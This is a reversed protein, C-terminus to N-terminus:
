APITVPRPRSRGAKSRAQVGCRYRHGPVLGRVRIAAGGVSDRTSGIAIDGRTRCTAVYGRIRSGRPTAATTNIVGVTAHVRRATARAPRRPNTRGAIRLKRKSFTLNDIMVTVGDSAISLTTTAAASGSTVAFSAATLTAPSDVNYLGSLMANPLTFQAHGTFPTTGDPEFHANAVDLIITNTAFDLQLPSSIWDASAALDFDRLSNRYAAPTAFGADDILAEWYGTGLHDAVSPCAGSGSCGSDTYAMRTPNMTITVTNSLASGGRAVVINKGREFTEWPYMSGTNITVSYVHTTDLLWGGGVLDLQVNYNVTGLNTFRTAQVNRTLDGEFFPVGDDAAAVICQTTTAGCWPVPTTPIRSDAFAPQAGCLALM